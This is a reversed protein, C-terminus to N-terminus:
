GIVTTPDTGDVRYVITYQITIVGVARDGADSYEKIASEYQLSKVLGGLTKDTLLATQVEASITDLTADVDSQGRAEGEIVLVMERTEKTGLSQQAPDKADENTHVSLVATIADDYNFVKGAVVNAGTTTLGTLLTVAADRIQTQAHAM